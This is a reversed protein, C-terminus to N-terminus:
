IDEKGDRSFENCQTFKSWACSIALPIELTVTGFEISGTLCHFRFNICYVTGTGILLLLVGLTNVSNEAIYAM